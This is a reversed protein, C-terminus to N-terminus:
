PRIALSRTTWAVGGRGDRVVVFVDVSTRAAGLDSPLQLNVKMGRDDKSPEGGGERPGVDPVMGGDIFRDRISSGPVFDTGFRGATTFWQYRLDELRVSTTGDPHRESWLEASTSTTVASWALDDGRSVRGTEGEDLRVGGVVLYEIVPNLNSVSDSASVLLEKRTTTVSTGARAVHLVFATSPDRDAPPPGSLLYEATSSTGLLRMGEPLPISAGDRVAAEVALLAPGDDCATAATGLTPPDCAIWTHAVARGEPEFVVADLRVARGPRVLPPEARVAITRFGTLVSAPVFPDDCAVLAAVVLAAVVLPAVVLPATVNLVKM